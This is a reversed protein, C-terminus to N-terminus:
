KRLRRGEGDREHCGAYPTGQMGSAVHTRTAEQAVDAAARRSMVVHEQPERGGYGVQSRRANQAVDAGSQRSMLAKELSGAGTTGQSVYVVQSRRDEQAVDAV